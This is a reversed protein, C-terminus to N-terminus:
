ERELITSIREQIQECFRELNCSIEANCTNALVFDDEKTIKKNLNM